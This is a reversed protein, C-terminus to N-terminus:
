RAASAAHEVAALDAPQLPVYGLVRWEKFTLDKTLADFEDLRDRTEINGVGDKVLVAYRQERGDKHDKKVSVWVMFAGSALRSDKTMLTGRGKVLVVGGENVRDIRFDRLEFVPRAPANADKTGARECGALSLALAAAPLLYRVPHM